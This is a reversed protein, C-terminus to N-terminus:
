TVSPSQGAFYVRHRGPVLPLVRRRCGTGRRDLKAADVLAEIGHITGPAVALSVDRNARVAGFRKDIRRLEVAPAPAAAQPAAGQREEGTPM